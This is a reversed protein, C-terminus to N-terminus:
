EATQAIKSERDTPWLWDRVVNVVARLRDDSIRQRYTAAMSSDVHGMIADVAVQDRSDGGVTEFTHRLAYFGRRGNIHLKRVLPDFRRAVANITVHRGKTRKSEQVRVFRNGRSTIFCLDSDKPDNPEPRMSIAKRLADVTEPWLPIRRQVETKPRPFSCWGTEFDVASQPLNAVDTNGFGCNIGLLVMAKVVPDVIQLISRIEEAEFMRPGSENRAKRLMKESPRDFSRGFEVSQAILRNDYAYKLVVRCRNIKSRLTVVGCDQSLSKRFGEFDDPRLDDVRRDKGFYGILLECTEYYKAFSHASLEGGDVRNRKSTLFSNCLTRITCGDGADAPPPTRGEKLFPWERNLRKLAESGEPDDTIKGFYHLKQRIKKAWRGTAHPFLPFGPYPKQAQKEPKYSRRSMTSKRM